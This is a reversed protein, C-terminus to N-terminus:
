KRRVIELRPHKDKKAKGSEIVVASGAAGMTEVLATSITAQRQPGLAKVSADDYRNDLYLDLRFSGGVQAMAAGLQGVARTFAPTGAASVGPAAAVWDINRVITKGKALEEAYDGSLEVTLGPAETTPAGGVGAMQPGMMQAMGAAGGMSAQMAALQEPTLGMPMAGAPMGTAAMGGPMAGPMVAPGGGPMCASGTAAGAVGQAAGAVGEGSTADMAGAILQGGPVVTCAAVKVVTRVVKNKAVSK